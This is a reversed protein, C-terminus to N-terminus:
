NIPDGNEFNMVLVLFNKIRPRRVGVNFFDLRFIRSILNKIRLQILADAVIALCYIALSYGVIDTVVVETM